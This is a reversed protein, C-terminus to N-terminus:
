GSQVYPSWDYPPGLQFRLIFESYVRSYEEIDYESEDVCMEAMRPIIMDITAYEEPTADLPCLSKLIFLIKKELEADSTINKIQTHLLWLKVHEELTVKSSIYPNNRFWELISDGGRMALFLETMRIARQLPERVEADENRSYSVIRDFYELNLITMKMPMDRFARAIIMRARVRDKFYFSNLWLTELYEHKRHNILGLLCYLITGLYGTFESERLPNLLVFKKYAALNNYPDVVEDSFALLRERTKKAGCNYILADRGNIVLTNRREDLILQVNCNAMNIMDIANDLSMPATASESYYARVESATYLSMGTGPRVEELMNLLFAVEIPFSKILKARRPQIGAGHLAQTVTSVSLIDEPTSCRKVLEEITCPDYRYSSVIFQNREQRYTRTYRPDPRVKKADYNRILWKATSRAIESILSQKDIYVFKSYTRQSIDNAKEFIRAREQDTFNTRNAPFNRRTRVYHALQLFTARWYSRKAAKPNDWLLKHDIFPIQV